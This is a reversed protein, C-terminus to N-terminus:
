SIDETLFQSFFKLFIVSTNCISNKGADKTTDFTQEGGSLFLFGLALSLASYSGYGVIPPNATVEGPAPSPESVPVRKLLGTLFCYNTLVSPPFLSWLKTLMRPPPQIQFESRLLKFTKIDGSGAVIVSLSLACLAMCNEVVEDDKGHFVLKCKQNLFYHVFYASTEAAM